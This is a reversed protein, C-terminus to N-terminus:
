AAAVSFRSPRFAVVAVRGRRSTKFVAGKGLIHDAPDGEFTVMVEGEVLAIEIPDRGVVLSWARWPELAIQLQLGDRGLVSRWIETFTQLSEASAPAGQLAFSTMDSM